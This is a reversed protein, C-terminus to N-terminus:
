AMLGLKVRNQRKYKKNSVSFTTMCNLPRYTEGSVLRIRLDSCTKVVWSPTFTQICMVCVHSYQECRPSAFQGLYYEALKYAQLTLPAMLEFHIM